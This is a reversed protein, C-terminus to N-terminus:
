SILGNTADHCIGDISDLTKLIGFLGKEHLHALRKGLGYALWIFDHLWAYAMHLGHPVREM